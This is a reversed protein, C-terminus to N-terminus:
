HLDEAVPAARERYRRLQQPQFGAALKNEILLIGLRNNRDRLTLQLDSEGNGESVSREAALLDMSEAPWGSVVFFSAAAVLIAM